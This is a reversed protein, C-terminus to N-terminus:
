GSCSMPRVITTTNLRLGAVSIPISDFPITSAALVRLCAEATEPSMEEVRDPGADVHCHACTQNCVRGVNLQLVEIGTARLPHLGASALHRDFDAGLPDVLPVGDLTSRQVRPDALPVQRRALTPLVELERTGRARLTEEPVM